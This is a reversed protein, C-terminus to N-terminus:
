RRTMQELDAPTNINYFATEESFLVRSTILTQYWTEIKRGGSDLFTELNQQVRRHMLAFVPHNQTSTAAFALDSHDNQLANMLTQALHKPFLPCDCPVFLVYPTHSHKLGTLFGALPGQFLIPDDSVVSVGADEYQSINHNANILVSGVQDRLRALSHKFLPQDKFLILGKDSGMRISKGGALVVGTVNKM